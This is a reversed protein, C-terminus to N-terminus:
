TSITKSFKHLSHCDAPVMGNKGGASWTVEAIYIDGRSDLAIDHPAFFDGNSTPNNGGGWRSLLKGASDFISVRGGTADPSPASTGPWMGAKYGLEVVFLNGAPDFAIQSPRALETWEHLFEGQPSFVQIRDNERDAVFVNEHRDIAIGHPVHFEGPGAGPEGWSFLLEGDPSFKHVRANGYGDTVYIDGQPSLAVNTPFYFPPGAYRITRYDIGTAGTDSPQGSTGLKLLLEGTPSFKRVTHDLDDTFYLADDPGITIGHARAFIDEGWSELFAGERDFVMVPHEGRNFVYVRDSSDTAVATAERWTFGDPLHAWDANATYTFAGQGVHPFQETSGENRSM